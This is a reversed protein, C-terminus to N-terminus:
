ENKEAVMKILMFRCVDDFMDVINCVGQKRLKRDPLIGAKGVLDLDLMAKLANIRIRERMKREASSMPNSLGQYWMERAKELDEGCRVLQTNREKLKELYELQKRTLIRM